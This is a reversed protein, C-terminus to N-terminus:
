HHDQVQHNSQRDTKEYNPQNGHNKPCLTRPITEKPKEHDHREKGPDASDPERWKAWHPPPRPQQWYNKRPDNDSKQKRSCARPSVSPAHRYFFLHRITFFSPDGDVDKKPHQYYKEENEPHSVIVPVRPDTSLAYMFRDM